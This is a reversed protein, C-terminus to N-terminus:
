PAPLPRPSVWGPIRFLETRAYDCIVGENNLSLSYELNGQYGSLIWIFGEHCTISVISRGNEAGGNGFDPTLLGAQVLEEFSGFRRGEGPGQLYRQEALGARVLRYLQEIRIPGPPPPERGFALFGLALGIMMLLYFLGRRVQRVVAREKRGRWRGHLALWVAAIMFGLGSGFVVPNVTTVAAAVYALHLQVAKTVPTGQAHVKM